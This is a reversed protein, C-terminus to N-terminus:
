AAENLSAEKGESRVAARAPIELGDVSVPLHTRNVYVCVGNEYVTVTVGEQLIRHDAITQTQLDGVLAEARRYAGLVAEYSDRYCASYYQSYATDKLVSSDAAMWCCSLQVGAALSELLANESDAQYNLPEGCLEVYGHLVLAYFPVDADLVSFGSSMLSINGVYSAMPLAYANGGYMAVGDEGALTALAKATLQAAQQRHVTANRNYDGYLTDALDTVVVPLGSNGNKRVFGAVVTQLKHPALVYSVVDEVPKQTVLDTATQQLFSQDVWRAANGYRGLGGTQLAAFRVAGEVLLGPTREAKDLWRKLGRKGGLVALPVARDARTQEMGGTMWATMQMRVSPVGDERLQKALTEMQTFDTLAEWGEYRIMLFSQATKVAGLTQVTLPYREETRRRSLIGRDILRQRYASAMGMYDAEEGQLFRFLVAIEGDYLRRQYSLVETEEGDGLTVYDWEKLAFSSYVGSRACSLGSKYAHIRGLSDGEEIMAVFAANGDKLGYVPLRVAQTGDAATQTGYVPAEYVDSATGTELRILAGSGDPVFVYGDPTNQAAGFCELLELRVPEANATYRFEEMPVTVRVGGDELTYRVVVRFATREVTHTEIGAATNDTELDEEGYGVADLIALLQNVILTSDSSRLVWVDGDKRYRKEVFRRDRVSLTENDLFLTHFRADTLQQPLSEAGRAFSGLTFVFEVGNDLYTMTHQKHRVSDTYSNVTKLESNEDYYYLTFQGNMREKVTGAAYADEQVDVPTSYWTREGTEVAIAGTAADALLRLAGQEAVTEYGSAAETGDVTLESWDVVRGDPQAACATLLACVLLWPVLRAAKSLVAKM